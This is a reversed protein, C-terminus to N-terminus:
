GAGTRTAGMETLMVMDGAKQTVAMGVGVHNGSDQRGGVCGQSVVVIVM